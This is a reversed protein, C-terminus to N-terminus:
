KVTMSIAKNCHPCHLQNEPKEQNIEHQYKQMEDKTLCLSLRLSELNNQELESINGDVMKEKLSKKFVDQRKHLEESFRSAMMGAPLAVMGIGLIMIMAGIMRGIMTVPVVDGYGVTTLTVIAWWMAKPISAFQEPQAQNEALFMFSSALVIMTLMITFAAMMPRFEAKLVQGLVNIGAFHRGLKLIRLLRVVRIIRLDIGVMFAIYFPLIAVLDIIAVPTLMYKFRAKLSNIPDIEASVWVRVFYELTFIIVSFLEIQWFLDSYEQSYAADTELIVSVVNVLILVFLFSHLLSSRLSSFVYSGELLQYIRQRNM